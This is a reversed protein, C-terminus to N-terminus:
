RENYPKWVYADTHRYVEERVIRILKEASIPVYTKWRCPLNLKIVTTYEEERLAAFTERVDPYGEREDGKYPNEGGAIGWLGRVYQSFPIFLPRLEKVKEKDLVQRTILEHNSVLEWDGAGQAPSAALSAPTENTKKFHFSEGIDYYMEKWKLARKGFKSRLYDPIGSPIFNPFFNKTMMSDYGVNLIFEEDSVWTVVPTHYLMCKYATGDKELRYHWQRNNRLPRENEKWSRPKPTRNFYDHCKQWSRLSRVDWACNSYM